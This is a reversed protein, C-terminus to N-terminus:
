GNLFKNENLLVRAGKEMSKLRHRIDRTARQPTDPSKSESTAERSIRTAVRNKERDRAWASGM